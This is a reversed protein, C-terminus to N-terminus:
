LVLIMLCRYFRSTIENFYDIHYEINSQIAQGNLFFPIKPRCPEITDGVFINLIGNSNEADIHFVVIFIHELYYILNITRRTLLNMFKSCCWGFVYQRRSAQWVGMFILNESMRVHM